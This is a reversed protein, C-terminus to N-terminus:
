STSDYIFYRLYIAVCEEHPEPLSAQTRLNDLSSLDQIYRDPDESYTSVIYEKLPIIFSTKETNKFPVTLCTSSAKM